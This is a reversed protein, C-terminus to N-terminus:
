VKARTFHRLLYGFTLLNILSIIMAPFTSSKFLRELPQLSPMWFLHYMNLTYTVSFIIYPILITPILGLLITAIPFFPYLYREHMRTVFLFTLVSSLALAIFVRKDSNKGKYYWYSIGSIGGLAVLQGWVRAPLGFYITSDLTKGSDVLWWFNFANATLYGIEGPLIRNAYLDIFWVPFDIQPHFWVSFVFTTLLMYFTALIYDRFPYRQKIILILLVPVFILLSGKFLFALTFWISFWGLKGVRGLNGFVGLLGFIGVLGLFNVISDTQGWIASNYWSLPNFLWVTAMIVGLKEKKRSKFFEYVLWGIGLDALVPFIKYIVSLGKAEWTWVLSSPFLGVNDNLFLIATESWQSILHTAGFTFIYLPPQNPASYPWDNADSSGYYDVIGRSFLEQGWSINNNLDGHHAIFALGFRFVFAVFFLIILKKKV